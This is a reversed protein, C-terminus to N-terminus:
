LFTRATFYQSNSCAQSVRLPTVPTQWLQLASSSTVVFGNQRSFVLVTLELEMPESSDEGEGEEGEGTM